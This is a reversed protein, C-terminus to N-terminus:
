RLDNALRALAEGWGGERSARYLAFDPFWPSRPRDRTWRWEPPWPVLVRAPRPVAARLHMNTNSVGVYDDAISMLALADDLDENAASLDVLSTGHAAQWADIEGARPERQVCVFTARVGRLAAGVLAPEIGKSLVAKGRRELGARWTVAIYPPAGADALRSAMRQRRTEDAVLRIAPPFADGAGLLHPLDGIWVLRAPDLAPPERDSAHWEAVIGSRVLMPGLRADGWFRLRAGRQALLPAFRLLFLTDGLGQEGHLTIWSDLTLSPLKSAHPLANPVAPDRLNVRPDPRWAFHPWAEAFRGLALLVMAHNIRAAPLDPQIQLALRVEELAREPEGVDRLALALNSHADALRPSIAIARELTGIAAPLDALVYHILGVRNVFEANGPSLAVGQELLPLGAEFNGKQCLVFGKYHLAAADAPAAVLTRDFWALAEDLRGGNMAAVGNRLADQAGVGATSVAAPELKGHCAKYRRGSGCPCPDNRRPSPINAM